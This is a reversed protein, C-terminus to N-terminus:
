SERSVVVVVVVVLFAPCVIFFLFFVGILWGVLFVFSGFCNWWNM